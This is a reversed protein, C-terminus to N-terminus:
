TRFRMPMHCLLIRSMTGHPQFTAIVFHMQAGQEFCFCQEYYPVYLFIKSPTGYQALIM